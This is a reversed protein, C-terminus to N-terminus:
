SFYTASLQFLLTIFLQLELRISIENKIVTGKYIHIYIYSM